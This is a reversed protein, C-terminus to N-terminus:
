AVSGAAPSGLTSVFGTEPFQVPGPQRKCRFTDVSPNISVIFKNFVLKAVCSSTKCVVKCPSFVVVNAEFPCIETTELVWISLPHVPKSSLFVWRIRQGRRSEHFGSSTSRKNSYVDPLLFINIHWCRFFCWVRFSIMHYNLSPVRSNSLPKFLLALEYPSRHTVMLFTDLGNVHESRGTRTGVVYLALLEILCM